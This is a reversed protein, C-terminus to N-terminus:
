ARRERDRDFGFLTGVARPAGRTVIDVKGLANEASEASFRARDIRDDLRAQEFIVPLATAIQQVGLLHQQRHAITEFLLDRAIPGFIRSITLRSPLPTLRLLSLM